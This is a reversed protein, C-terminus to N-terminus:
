SCMDHMILILCRVISTRNLNDIFSFLECISSLTNNDASSIFLTLKDDITAILSTRIKSNIISGM